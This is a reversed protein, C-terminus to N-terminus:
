QQPQLARQVQGSTTCVSTLNCCELWSSLEIHSQTMSPGVSTMFQYGKSSLLSLLISHLSCLIKLPSLSVLRLWRVFDFLHYWPLSCGSCTV